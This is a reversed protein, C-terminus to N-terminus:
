FAQLHKIQHNTRVSLDAARARVSEIMKLVRDQVEYSDPVVIDIADMKGKTIHMMGMGGDSEDGAGCQKKWGM